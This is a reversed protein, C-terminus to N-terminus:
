ELPRWFHPGKKIYFVRARARTKSAGFLILCFKLEQTALGRRRSRTKSM